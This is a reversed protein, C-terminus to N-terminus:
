KGDIFNNEDTNDVTVLVAEKMLCKRRATEWSSYDNDFFYCHGSFTKWDDECDGGGVVPM